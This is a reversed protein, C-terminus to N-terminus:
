SAEGPILQTSQTADVAAASITARASEPSGSSLGTSISSAHAVTSAEAAANVALSNLCTRMKTLTPICNPRATIMVPVRAHLESENPSSGVTGMRAGSRTQVAVTRSAAVAGRAIEDPRAWGTKRPRRRVTGSTRM